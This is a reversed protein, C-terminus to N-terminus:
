LTSAISSPFWKCNYLKRLTLCNHVFTLTMPIMKQRFAREQRNKAVNNHTVRNALSSATIQQLPTTYSLFPWKKHINWAWYCICEGWVGEPTLRLKEGRPLALGLAEMASTRRTGIRTPKSLSCILQKTRLKWDLVNLIPSFSMFSPATPVVKKMM